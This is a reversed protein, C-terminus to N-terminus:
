PLRLWNMACAMATHADTEYENTTVKTMTFTRSAVIPMVTFSSSSYTPSSM